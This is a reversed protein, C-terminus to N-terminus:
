DFNISYQLSMLCKGFGFGVDWAIGGWDWGSLDERGIWWGLGRAHMALGIVAEWDGMYKKWSVDFVINGGNQIDWGVMKGLGLKGVHM